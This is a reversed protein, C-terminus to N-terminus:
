LGMWQKNSLSCLLRNEESKDVVAQTVNERQSEM